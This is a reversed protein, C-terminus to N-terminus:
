EAKEVIGLRFGSDVVICKNDPFALGIAECVNARQATSLVRKAHIVVVDGPHVKVTSLEAELYRVEPKDM